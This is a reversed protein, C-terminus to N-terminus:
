RIEVATRGIAAYAAKAASSPGIILMAAHALEVEHLLPALQEITMARVQEAVELESGVARHLDLDHEAVDALVHATAPMSVLKAIVRRRASVFLKAVDDGTDGLKALSGRLREVAAPARSADINGQITIMM